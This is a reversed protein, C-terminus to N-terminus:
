QEGGYMDGVGDIIAKEISVSNDAIGQLQNDNSKKIASDVISIVDSLKVPLANTRYRISSKIVDMTRKVLDERLLRHKRLKEFNSESQFLPVKFHNADPETTQAIHAFMHPSISSFNRSTPLSDPSKKRPLRRAIPTFLVPSLSELTRSDTNISDTLSSQLLEFSKQPEVRLSKDILNDDHVGWNSEVQSGAPAVDLPKEKSSVPVILPYGCSNRVRRYKLGFDEKGEPLQSKFTFGPISTQKRIDIKKQVHHRDLYGGWTSTPHTIKDSSSSRAISASNKDPSENSSITSLSLPVRPLHRTTPRRM